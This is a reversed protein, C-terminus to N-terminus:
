VFLSVDSDGAFEFYTAAGGFEIGDIFDERKFDFLDMTMQCAILKVGAELCLDRLEEVSAVGKAAMKQKMMWTAMSEMGPLAQVLNPMPVPMPMATNGTRKAIHQHQILLNDRETFGPPLLGSIAHALKLLLVTGHLGIIVM